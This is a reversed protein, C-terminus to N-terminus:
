RIGVNDATLKSLTPSNNKNKRRKTASKDPFMYQQKIFTYLKFVNTTSINYLIVLNM